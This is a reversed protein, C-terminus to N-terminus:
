KLVYDYNINNKTGDTNATIPGSASLMLLFTIPGVTCIFLILPPRFVWSDADYMPWCDVEEDYRKDHDNDDDDDDLLMRRITEQTQGDTEEGGEGDKGEAETEIKTKRRGNGDIGETESDKWADRYKGQRLRKRM